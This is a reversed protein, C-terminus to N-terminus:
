ELGRGEEPDGANVVQRRLFTVLDASFAFLNAPLPGERMWSLHLDFQIPKGDSAALRRQLIRTGSMETSDSVVAIGMGSEALKILTQASPCEFVIEPEVGRLRFASLLLRTSHYSAGRVLLPQSQLDDVPLPENVAAFPHGEPVAAVLGVRALLVTECEAPVPSALIAADCEKNLLRYRLRATGDYLMKVKAEPRQQMWIPLFKALYSRTATPSSGITLFQERAGSTALRLEEVAGLVRRAGELVAEGPATLRVGWPGRELLEVNLEQELRKIRRSLSSQSQYLSEAALRFGSHDVVALFAELDRFDM